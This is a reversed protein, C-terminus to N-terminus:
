PKREREARAVFSARIAVIRELQEVLEIVDENGPSAVALLVRCAWGEPTTHGHLVLMSGRLKTEAILREVTAHSTSQLPELEARLTAELREEMKRAGDCLGQPCERWGVHGNDLHHAQHVSQATWAIHGICDSLIGPARTM